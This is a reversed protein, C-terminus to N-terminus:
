WNLVDRKEQPTLWEERDELPELCADRLLDSSGGDGTSSVTNVSDRKSRGYVSSEHQFSGDEEKEGDDWNKMVERFDAFTGDANIIVPMHRKSKINRIKANCKMHRINGDFGQVEALAVSLRKTGSGPVLISGHWKECFALMAEKSVFNVFAYGLTRHQTQSYPLHLINYVGKPPWLSLLKGQTCRAPINRIILTRVDDGVTQLAVGPEIIASALMSPSSPPSTMYALRDPSLAIHAPAGLVYAPDVSPNFRMPQAPSSSGTTGALPSAGPRESANCGKLGVYAPSFKNPPNAAVSPPNHVAINKTFTGPEPMTPIGLQLAYVAAWQLRAEEMVIPCGSQLYQMHDISETASLMRELNALKQRPAAQMNQQAEWSWRGQQYPPSEAPQRVHSLTGEKQFLNRMCISDQNIRRNVALVESIADTLKDM